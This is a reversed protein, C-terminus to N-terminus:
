KTSSRAVHNLLLKSYGKSRYAPAVYIAYIHGKKNYVIFGATKKDVLLIKVINRKLADKVYDAPTFSTGIAGVLNDYEKTYAKIMFSKNLKPKVDVIKTHSAANLASCLSLTVSLLSIIFKKMAM